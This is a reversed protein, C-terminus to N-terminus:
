GFQDSFTLSNDERDRLASNLSANWRLMVDEAKFKKNTRLCTLCIPFVSSCLPLAMYVYAYKSLMKM